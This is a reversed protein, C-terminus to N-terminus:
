LKAFSQVLEDDTARGVSELWTSEEPRAWRGIYTWDMTSGRADVIARIDALDQLIRRRDNRLKLMKHLLLDEATVVRVTVGEIQVPIARALCEHDYASKSVFLDVDWEGVSFRVIDPLADSGSRMGDRLALIRDVEELPLVACLDIDKTQRPFAWVGVAVGGTFAFDSVQHSRLVAAVRTLVAALSELPKTM